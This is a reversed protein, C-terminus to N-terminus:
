FDERSFKYKRCQEALAAKARNVRVAVYETPRNISAAIEPNSLGQQFRMNLFQRNEESLKELLFSISKSKYLSNINADAKIESEMEPIAYSEGDDDKGAILFDSFCAPKKKRVLDLFFNNFSKLIFAKELRGGIERGDNMKECFGLIFDSVADEADAVSNKKSKYIRFLIEGFKSHIEGFMKGIEPNSNKQNKM